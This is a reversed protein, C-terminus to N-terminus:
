ERHANEPLTRNNKFWETDELVTNNNSCSLKSKVKGEERYVYLVITGNFSEFLNASYDLCLTTVYIQDTYISVNNIFAQTPFQNENKSTYESSGACCCVCVIEPQIVAMLKASSSTKSGHHGAKYLKVKGLKDANENVLSAEGEAELDGTFLYRNEGEVIQLCVSYNNETTAKEKYYKQYLIQMSIEDSSGESLIYKSEALEGKSNTDNNVCELATFCKAGRTVADNRERVYNDFLKKGATQNTKAFEIITGIDYLDFLSDTGNNTAFGAYHDEHAHTVVVYELKGDTVYKDLHEKIYPISSAKSGADILVETNGVKILTCDGTYKNGLELFQISLDASSIEDVDLGTASSVAGGGNVKAPIEYSNPLGIIMFAWLSIILGVVLSVASALITRIKSIKKKAM